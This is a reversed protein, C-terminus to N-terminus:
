LRPLLLLWPSLTRADDFRNARLTDDHAAAPAARFILALLAKM